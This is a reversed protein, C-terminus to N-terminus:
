REVPLRKLMQMMQDAIANNGEKRNQREADQLARRAPVLQGLQNYVQVLPMVIRADGPTARRATELAVVAEKLRQQQAYLLGLVSNLDPSQPNLELGRKALAEAKEIEGERAAQMSKRVSLQTMLERARVSGPYADYFGRIYKEASELRWADLELVGLEAMAQPYKPRLELARELYAYAEDKRGAHELVLAIGLNAEAAYNVDTMAKKYAQIAQDHFGLEDLVAAKAKLIDPDGPKASLGQEAVILASHLDKLQRHAESLRVYMTAPVDPLGIGKSLTDRATKFEGKELYIRALAEYGDPNDPALEIVREFIAKGMDGHQTQFDISGLMLLRDIDYCHDNLEEIWPDAAERFRGAATGLWEQREADEVNGSARLLRAMLNHGLPLKPRGSISKELWERAKETEGRQMAIRALGICAYSDDPLLQLRQLYSRQAADIEGASFDFNGLKLWAPAYDPAEEVVAELLSRMSTEDGLLRQVDVLYYNWKAHTPELKLLSQWCQKAKNPYGNVHYLKGLREFGEISQNRIYSSAQEEAEKLALAFPQPFASIDPREPISQHMQNLSGLHLALVVGSVM